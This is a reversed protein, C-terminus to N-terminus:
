EQQEKFIYEKTVSVYFRSNGKYIIDEDDVMWLGDGLKYPIGTKLQYSGSVYIKQANINGDLVDSMIYIDSDKLSRTDKWRIQTNSLNKMEGASMNISSAWSSWESMTGDDRIVRTSIQYNAPAIITVIGIYNGNPLKIGIVYLPKEPLEIYDSNNDDKESDESVWHITLDANIPTDFDYEWYGKETPQLAPKSVQENELVKSTSFINSNYVFQVIYTHKEPQTPTEPKTPVEPQTPQEPKTPVEPQTPKEPETPVEPQTPQEPKTPVEPQTPQEPKTPVEPQTPKEPETPIEPQTPQEPETPVEPQTPQEPKTPVESQTPKEPETPVEPQTPQEPETPVESQTPKEVETPKEVNTPEEIKTPIEPQASQSEGTTPEYVSQTNNTTSVTTQNNYTPQVNIVSDDIVVKTEQRVITNEKIESEKNTDAAENKKEAMAIANKEKIVKELESKDISFSKNKENALIRNLFQLADLNLNKYNVTGNILEYDANGKTGNVQVSDGKTVMVIEENMTGDPNKLQCAVTGEMVELTTHPTDDKDYHVEMRFTTGRVAMTSNPTNVEYSSNEGLKNQLNNIISGKKLEIVTKSDQSNGSAILQIQTDGELLAYKDNDLKLQMSADAAVSVEDNNQLQMNNYAELTQNNDRKVSATGNLEYVQIQRYVEEKNLFIFLVGVIAVLSAVVTAAILAVKKKDM